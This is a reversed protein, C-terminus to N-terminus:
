FNIGIQLSFVFPNRQREISVEKGLATYRSGVIEQTGFGLEFYPDLKDGEGADSKFRLSVSPMIVQYNAVSYTERTELSDYRDWGNELFFNQNFFKCGVDLSVSKSLKVGAEAFVSPRLFTNWSPWYREGSYIYTLATGYGRRDTGAYDEYGREAMDARHNYEQVIDTNFLFELDAGAKFEFHKFDARAGLKFGLVNAKDSPNLWDQKIPADNGAAWEDGSHVPINRISLPIGKVKNIVSEEYTAGLNFDYYFSVTKAPEGARLMPSFLAAAAVASAAVM